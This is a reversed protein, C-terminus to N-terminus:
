SSARTSSSAPRGAPASWSARAGAIAPFSNIGASAKTKWLQKGTATAFAYVTGDYTSTFVVDNAVTAAGFAPSPLRRQWLVRGTTADLARSGAAARACAPGHWELIDRENEDRPRGLSSCGSAPSRWPRRSAASRAPTSRSRLGEDAARHREPAQRRLHEVAAQRRRRPLRLGQGDQGRHDRRPRRDWERDAPDPHPLHRPRLRAPRAPRGAPVVVAERDERRARRALQHVSEPRAPEVREPIREHGPVAGPQRRRPVRPGPRRRRASVLPRRRRQRGAQGVAVRRGRGHRLAVEARGDRRRAGLRGRADGPPVLGHRQEAGHELPRHRRVVPARDRHGRARQARAQADVAAEGDESGARLCGDDDRRLPPGLRLLRREPRREASRVRAELAAAGDRPRARLRELESGAPLHHRRTRDADLRLRRVLEHGPDRVAMRGEPRRGHARRDADARPGRTASTATTRRGGARM